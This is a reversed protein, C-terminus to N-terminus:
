RLGEMLRVVIRRRELDVERVVERILPLLIEGVVMVDNAPLKDIREVRGLFEGEETFVEAGILDEVYFEGELLPERMERHIYIEHRRLKEAEEISDVGEFKVLVFDGHPRVNQVKLFRGDAPAGEPEVWVKRGVLKEFREPLDTRPRVKVEGRIGHPRSIEGVL